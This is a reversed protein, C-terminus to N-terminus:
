FHSKEAYITGDLIMRDGSFSLAKELCTFCTGAMKAATVEKREL